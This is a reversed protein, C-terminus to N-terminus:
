RGKFFIKVHQFNQYKIFEILNNTLCKLKKNILLKIYVDLERTHVNFFREAAM